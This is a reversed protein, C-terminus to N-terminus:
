MLIKLIDSSRGSRRLYFIVWYIDDGSVSYLEKPLSLSCVSFFILSKTFRPTDDMNNPCVKKSTGSTTNKLDGFRPTDDMNM